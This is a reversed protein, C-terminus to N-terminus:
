SPLTGKGGGDDKRGLRAAWRVLLTVGVIVAAVILVLVLLVVVHYGEVRM